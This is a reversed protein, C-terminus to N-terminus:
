RLVVFADVGVMPRGATGEVVVRLTHSGAASWHKRYVIRAPQDVSSALDVTAVLTGDLYVTARGLGPGREAIWAVDRGSFSLTARAGAADAEHLAGGIATPDPAVTWAGAYVVSSAGDAVVRPRFTPGYDWYGVNGYKDIARVRYRYSHGPTLSQALEKVKKSLIRKWAGGDVSRELQYRDIGWGRDSGDWTITVPVLTGLTGTGIRQAPATTNPRYRDRRRVPPDYCASWVRSKTTDSNWCVTVNGTVSPTFTFSSGGQQQKVADGPYDALWTGGSLPAGAVAYARYTTPEGLVLVYDEPLVYVMPLNSSTIHRSTSGVVPEIAPEEPSAGISEDIFDEGPLEVRYSVMVQRYPMWPLTFSRPSCFGASAPGYTNFFGFTEDRDGWYLSRDNGWMVEWYCSTGSPFSVPAPFQPTLTITQGTVPVDPSVRIPARVTISTAVSKVASWNGAGDRAQVYLTRPGLRSSGGQAPDLFRWDIADSWAIPPSWTTGNSSLRVHSMPWGDASPVSVPRVADFPDLDEPWGIQGIVPIQRDLVVGVADAVGLNGAADRWVVSIWHEGDGWEPFPEPLLAFEIAEAYAVPDGYSGNHIVQVSVVGVDDTAPVHLTVLPDSTYGSGDNITLTGVPPTVDVPDEALVPIAAVALLAVISVGGALLAGVVRGSWGHM